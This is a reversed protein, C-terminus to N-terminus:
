VSNLIMINYKGYPYKRCLYPKYQSGTIIYNMSVTSIKRINNIINKNDYLKQQQVTSTHQNKKKIVTVVASSSSNSQQQATSTTEVTSSNM